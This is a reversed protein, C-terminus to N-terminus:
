WLINKISVLVTSNVSPYKDFPFINYAVLFKGKSNMYLPFSNNLKFISSKNGITTFGNWLSNISWESLYELTSLVKLWGKSERKLFLFPPRNLM